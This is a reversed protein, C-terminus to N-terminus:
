ASDRKKLPIVEAREGSVGKFLDSAVAAARQLAEDALHAYRQTMVPSSHTLLKQLTYLDVEGSSALLSAYAHRLGHLPRFDKPLGARDRIRQSIRSLTTRQRGERGPFVFLSDGREIKELVARAAGSLPIRSTKGSKAVEGRLTIFSNEFDVDTWKLALLAGKRMGTFLALKIAAAAEQNPDADLAALYAAMQERTLSETRLNDVRPLEFHLRSADPQPCLGKKVGFNIIRKLLVLVHRVTQPALTKSKLIRLRDLDLSVLEDPTKKAFPDALHNKYIGVDTGRVKRGARASDYAQWLREITPRREEEQRATEVEDRREQNSSVKGVARLSREQNARAATWGESERGLKEEILRTEGTRRYRIYYVREKRTKSGLCTKEAFFVGAYGTKTREQRPM